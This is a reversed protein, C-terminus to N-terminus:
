SMEKRRNIEDRIVSAMQYDEINIAEKMREELESISLMDLENVEEENEKDSERDEDIDIEISAEEMVQSNAYIECGYRLAIAIADSSRADIIKEEGDKLCHLESFFIGNKFKSIVVEGFEIDFAQAFDIFLDHTLPRRSKISELAMAISQAEPNGIMIPLKKKSNKDGLILAYAGSQSNSYTLGIVELLVKNM